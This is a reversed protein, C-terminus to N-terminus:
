SPKVLRGSYALKQSARLAVMAAAPPLAVPLGVAADFDTRSAQSATPTWLPQLGPVGGGGGHTPEVLAVSGMSDRCGYPLLPSQVQVYSLPDAPKLNWKVSISM